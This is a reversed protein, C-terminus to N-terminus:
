SPLSIRALRVLDVLYALGVAPGSALIYAQIMGRLLLPVAVGPCNAAMHRILIPTQPVAAQCLATQHSMQCIDFANLYVFCYYVFQCM